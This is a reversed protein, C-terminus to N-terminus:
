PQWGTRGFLRHSNHWTISALESLSQERLEAVKTAIETMYKPENDRPRPRLTRPILFPADTELVLRDDPIRPLAERLENSRREDCIWGTIGLSCGLELYHEAQACGGTFCHTLMSKLNKGYKKLLQSQPEFADREHLYVPLGLESAVELQIEFVRLQDAQPSFNRNFDLGCEGIAVVGEHQALRYLQEALDTPVNAADHPHVGVTMVLQDPYDAVMGLAQKAETLNCSIALQRKVGAQEAAIMVESLRQQLRPHALNVGCDFWRM